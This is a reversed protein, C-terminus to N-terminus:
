GSRLGTAGQGFSSGTNGMRRCVLYDVDGGMAGFGRDRVNQTIVWWLAWVPNLEIYRMSTLRYQGSDFQPWGTAGKGWPTPERVAIVSISYM